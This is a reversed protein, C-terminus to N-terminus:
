GHDRSVMTLIRKERLLRKNEIYEAFGAANFTGLITEEEKEEKKKLNFYKKM